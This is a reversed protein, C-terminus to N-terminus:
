KLFFLNLGTRPGHLEAEISTPYKCWKQLGRPPPLCLMFVCFVSCLFCLCLQGPGQSCASEYKLLEPLCQIKEQVATAYIQSCKPIVQLTKKFYQHWPGVGLNQDKPQVGQGPLLAKWLEESWELVYGLKLAVSRSWGRGRSWLIQPQGLTLAIVDELAGWYQVRTVWGGLFCGSSREAEEWSQVRWLWPTRGATGALDVETWRWGWEWLHHRGM